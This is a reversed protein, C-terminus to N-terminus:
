MCWYQKIELSAAGEARESLGEEGSEESVVTDLSSVNNLMCQKGHQPGPVHLM